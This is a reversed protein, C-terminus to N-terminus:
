KAQTQHTQEIQKKLIKKGINTRDAMSMEDKDARDIDLANTKDAKEVDIQSTNLRDVRDIKTKSAM